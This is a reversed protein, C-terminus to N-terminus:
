AGVARRDEATGRAGEARREIRLFNCEVYKAGQWFKARDLVFHRAHIAIVEPLEAPVEVSCVSEGLRGLVEVKM